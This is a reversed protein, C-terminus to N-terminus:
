IIPCPLARKKNDKKGIRYIVGLEFAGLTHSAEALTSLNADYSFAFTWSLWDVALNISLADGHRGLLGASFALYDNPRENVYWKVDAGYVLESFSKQHQFGVVPQLGWQSLWRWEGRAYLNWKRSLRTDNMGLYSIDPENINRVSFGVKTYITETHQCFWAVGAGLTPYLAKERTFPETGDPLVINQPNFGTQGIGLEAAVSVLNDGNGVAQYYSLIASASTSGYDLDGARDASVWLGASLGNKNRKSRMLSLEGTVSITQFPTTVSAWQNRYVAGFRAQGDFFGSYAPNFLLPDLDLFSFHIDQAKTPLPLLAPLAILALLALCYRRSTCKDQVGQVGQVGKYEKKM